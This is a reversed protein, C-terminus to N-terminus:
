SVLLLSDTLALAAGEAAEQPLHFWAVTGGGGTKGGRALSCVLNSSPVCPVLAWGKSAVDQIISSIAEYGLGTAAQAVLKLCPEQWALREADESTGTGAVLDECLASWTGLSPSPTVLDAEALTERQSAVFDDAPPEAHCMIHIGPLLATAPAFSPNAQAAKVLLSTHEPTAIAPPDGGVPRASTTSRGSVAHVSATIGHSVAGQQSYPGPPYAHLATKSPPVSLPICGRAKM